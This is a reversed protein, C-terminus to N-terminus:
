NSEKAPGLFQWKLVKLLLCINMKRLIKFLFHSRFVSPDSTMFLNSSAWLRLWVCIKILVPAQILSISRCLSLRNFCNPIICCIIGRQNRLKCLRCRLSAVYGVIVILGIDVVTFKELLSVRFHHCM